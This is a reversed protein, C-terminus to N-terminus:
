RARSFLRDIEEVYASFLLRDIEELRERMDSPAHAGAISGDQLDRIVLHGGIGQACAETCRECGLCLWISPSGFLVEQQGLNVMRFLLVPDYVTRDHAIPCVTTCAGCTMCAALNWTLRGSGGLTVAGALAPIPAESMRRWDAGELSEGRLLRAVMHWRARQFKGQLLEFAEITAEDVYGMM